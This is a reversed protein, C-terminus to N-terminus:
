MRNNEKRRSKPRSSKPRGSKGRATRPRGGGGGGDSYSMYVHSLDGEAAIAAARAEAEERGPSRKRMNNGTYAVCRLQWEGIDESWAVNREILEQHDAPFFSDILLMQLRLERTLQRVNDLLGEMERQQEAQTPVFLNTTVRLFSSKSKLYRCM